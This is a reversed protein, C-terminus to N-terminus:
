IAEVEIDLSIEGAPAGGPAFSREIFRARGDAGMLLVTSARTGYAVGRIFPPSLRREVEIGVGTDPLDADDALREDALAAFLPSCEGDDAQRSLLWGQLAATLRRSKPWPADLRGNSLGHVGESVPTWGLQPRNSAHVLEGRDWLLLNFAGYSAGEQSVQRAYDAAPQQGAIFERVLAGRSRPAAEVRPERFNTVAAMRGSRALALWGGGERLDRGGYVGTMETWEHLAATPREHFEDRNAVVVLRYRPHAQWALAILCM